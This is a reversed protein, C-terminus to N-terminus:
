EEDHDEDDADSMDDLFKELVDEDVERWKRMVASDIFYFYDGHEIVTLGVRGAKEAMKSIRVSHLNCVKLLEKTNSRNMKFKGRDAGGFPEEYLGNWLVDVVKGIKRAM